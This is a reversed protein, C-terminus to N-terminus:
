DRKLFYCILSQEKQQEKCFLSLAIARKNSKEFSRILLREKAREFLAFSCFDAFFSHNELDSM